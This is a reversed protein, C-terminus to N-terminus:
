FLEVDGAMMSTQQVPRKPAEFLSEASLALKEQFDSLANVHNALDAELNLGALGRKVEASFQELRALRGESHEVLQRVIDEFQLSRSAVATKEELEGTIVATEKLSRSINDELCKLFGMMQDLRSKNTIVTNMDRSASEGVLARVETITSQAKEAKNRIEDNFRSSHLSLKRVEDAVVAFGRGAEGARAAEIAANLALLNTKDAISKVEKLLKFIAEMQEAMDDIKTTTDISLKSGTVILEIVYDLTASTDKVFAEITIQGGAEEGNRLSAMTQQVLQGQSQTLGNLGSFSAHLEQVADRVLTRVQALEKHIASSEMKVRTHVQDLLKRVADQVGHPGLQIEAYDNQAAQPRRGATLWWTLATTFLLAAYLGNHPEVYAVGMAMGTVIFALTNSSLLGKSV